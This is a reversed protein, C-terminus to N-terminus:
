IRFSLLCVPIKKPDTGVGTIGTGSTGRTYKKPTLTKGKHRDALVFYNQMGWEQPLSLRFVFCTSFLKIWLFCRKMHM